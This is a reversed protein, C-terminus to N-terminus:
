ELLILDGPETLIYWVDETIIAASGGTSVGGAGGIALGGSGMFWPNGGGIKLGGSPTSMGLRGSGGWVGGGPWIDADGFLLDWLPRSFPGTPRHCCDGLAAVYSSLQHQEIPEPVQGTLLLEVWTVITTLAVDGAPQLPQTFGTGTIQYVSFPRWLVVWDWDLFFFIIALSPVLGGGPPILPVVDQRHIVHRAARIGDLEVLRDDGPKPIGFTLIEIDRTPVDALLRRALIWLVVAGRSHGIFTIPKDPNWGFGNLFVLQETSLAFWEASTSFAGFNHPLQSLHFAQVFIESWTQTGVRFIVQFRPGEIWAFRDTTSDPPFITVTYGPWLLNCATTFDAIAAPYPETLLELLRACLRQWCCDIINPRLLATVDIDVGPHFVVFCRRDFGNLTSVPVAPPYPQDIAFNEPPFINQDPPVAVPPEGDYWQTGAGVVQGVPYDPNFGGDARWSAAGFAHPAEIARTDPAAFYHFGPCLM